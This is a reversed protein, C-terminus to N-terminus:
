EDSNGGKSKRNTNTETTGKTTQSNSGTAHFSNLAKLIEEYQAQLRNYEEHTVYKNDLNEESTQVANQVREKYDFTRLPLPVGSSDVSKIYFVPTESDMLLVSQGDGVYWSKAAAEGQVYAWTQRAQPLQPPFMQTGQVTQQFQPMQRQAQLQQLRDMPPPDPQYVTRGYQDVFYAM